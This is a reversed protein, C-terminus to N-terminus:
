NEKVKFNEGLEDAYRKLAQEVTEDKRQELRKFMELDSLTHIGIKKMNEFVEM